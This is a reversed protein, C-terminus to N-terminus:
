LVILNAHNVALKKIRKIGKFFVEVKLDDEGGERKIIVGSGFKPHVVPTGINYDTEGPSAVTEYSGPENSAVLNSVPRGDRNALSMTQVLVERPIADLFDSPQNCSIQGYIKRTKANSLWLRKRARTFGVYCLRREEEYEELDSMSSAHPLLRNEMGIIFVAPFELGKCTHLTMLHLAGQSEDYEDVGAVLTTSDLFDRLWGTKNQEIFSDAASRLEELNEVRSKNERDDVKKLMDIYGTREFIETLFDQGPKNRYVNQLHDLLEVFRGIKRAVAPSTIGKEQALRMGEVPTLHHQRCYADIKDISVKGIGRPPLNIIRKLSVSDAPNLVVRMYALVDKIEKREYFRLGGVVQYPLRMESLIKEMVRSQAHTRYFIAIDNFSLGDERHLQQARECVTRAEDNEDEARFYIVPDGEENQTWLTKEKRRTNERVVAGAAKLINKTSRYNEELKVVTTGPFDREFNLLNELNAGRWRYISQDDDGVVCVNNHERCLLQVLYYQAMNTDQFEDVLLYRFKENYYRAVSDVERLLRVALILLDDFDLANNEKLAKQFQSYIEVARKKPDHSWSQIDVDEPLLFDNKFGRIYNLISKPPYIEEKIGLSKMCSKVLSLQDQQDYVVFDIKYGLEHIHRRLIRLCFSHFTSIWPFFRTADLMGRVREMMEKAAKNTFTIALINEPPINKERILHVIRCTIVRTKGSGAGAVIM